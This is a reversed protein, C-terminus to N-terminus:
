PAVVEAGSWLMAIGRHYPLLTPQSAPTPLFYLYPTREPMAAIVRANEEPGLDRVFLPGNGPVGPLDGQWVLPAVDLIGRTDSRAERLCQPTLVEGPQVRIKDGPALDITPPLNTARPKMDLQAVAARRMASNTSVLADALTQLTCTSNQRIATEVSDLPMGSVALRMALRGKWADHVFILSPGALDPVAIRAIAIWDGGYSRARQPSMMVLGLALSFALAAAVASRPTFRGGLVPRAPTISGALELGAVTTLLAWAPAAELLMRPGMYIGHHWYFVNSAVLVLAWAAFVRTGISLRRAFLLYVGVVLVASIPTELLSVGLTLLDSSTYAMAEVPGYQNGWPDRHFGLSMAPGLAINYGLRLPGGFFHTNYALLGAVIPLAGAAALAVRTAFHRMRQADLAPWWVTLCLAGGVALASVPRVAFANALAVGAGVAWAAREDRARVLCYLAVAFMAVSTIHNMFSGALCILFPSLALLLGGLRAAAPRDPFLRAAAITTFFVAIGAMVPGILWVVGLKFGLALLLVHGPPYQSVWGRPTILSNQIHWFENLFDGPGAPLGAALYRAHLLQAMADVLSPKGELVILTFASTLIVITLAAVLALTTL